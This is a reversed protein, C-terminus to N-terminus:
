RGWAGEIATLAVVHRWRLRDRTWLCLGDVLAVAGSRCARGGDRLVQEAEKQQEKTDTNEESGTKVDAESM